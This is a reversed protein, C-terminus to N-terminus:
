VKINFTSQFYKWIKQARYHIFSPMLTIIYFGYSTIRFPYQKIAIWFLKRSQDSYGKSLLIRGESISKIYRGEKNNNIKKGIIFKDLDENHIDNSNNYYILNTINANSPDFRWDWGKIPKKWDTGYKNVIYEEIPYPTITQFCKFSTTQLIFPSYIYKIMNRGVLKGSKYLEQWAGHWYYEKEKYFFFLDLKINNKMLSIELGINNNGFRYMENWGKSIFKSMFNENYDEIFCALDIDDDDGMLKGERYLGLLTGDTIWWKMNCSELLLGAEKILAIGNKHNM